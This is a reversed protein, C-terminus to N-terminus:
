LREGESDRDVSLLSQIAVSVAQESLATRVGLGANRMGPAHRLEDAGDRVFAAVTVAPQDNRFDSM